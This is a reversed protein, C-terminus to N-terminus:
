VNNRPGGESDEHSVAGDVRIVYFADHLEDTKVAAFIDRPGRDNAPHADSSGFQLGYHGPALALAILAERQVSTLPTGPPNGM